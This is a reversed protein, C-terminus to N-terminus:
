SMATSARHPVPQMVQQCAPRHRLYASELSIEFGRCPLEQPSKKAKKESSSRAQKKASSANLCSDADTNVKHELEHRVGRRVRHPAPQLEHQRRWAVPWSTLLLELGYWM